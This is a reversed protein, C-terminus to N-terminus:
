PTRRRLVRSVITAQTRTADHLPVAAVESVVDVGSEVAGVSAEVIEHFGQMSLKASPESHPVM